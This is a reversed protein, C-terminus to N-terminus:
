ETPQDLLREHRRPRARAPHSVPHELRDLLVCELPEPLRPIRLVRPPAVRREVQCEGLFGPRKYLPPVLDLPEVPQLGLVSLRLAAMAQDRSASPPREAARKPQAKPMYQVIRARWM